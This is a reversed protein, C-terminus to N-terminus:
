KVRRVVLNELNKEEFYQSVAKADSESEFPGCYVVYYGREPVVAFAYKAYSTKLEMYFNDANDPNKFTGLQIWLTEVTELTADAVPKEIGVRELTVPLSGATVLGLEQAAAYSVDIIRGRVFPGRDNVRVVISKGEGTTVRVLTGFPLTRHAATFANMDYIEGSATKKGHFQKGYWSAYGKWADVPSVGRPRPSGCAVLLTAALAAFVPQLSAPM